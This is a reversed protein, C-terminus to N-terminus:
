PQVTVTVEKTTELGGDHASLRVVFTGPAGFTVEVPYRADAPLPPPAWGAAFPSNAGPRKDQWVRFQEPSFTVKDAPGRYVYWAVRLGEATQDNQPGTKPTPKPKLIGDDRVLANLTLPEGVKVTRNVSGELEILPPQNEEMGYAIVKMHANTQLILKDLKYDPKLTAYAKETKGNVVLTWVLENNGFDKPVPVRFVFKNRRPFFLTPQGRDPGGPEVNNNPGIPVLPQEEWNRNFYGFVMNFSGDPNEEWGEFAPAINQGQAFKSQHYRSLEQGGTVTPAGGTLVGVLILAGTWAYKLPRARRKTVM